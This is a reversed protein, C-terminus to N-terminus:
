VPLKMYKSGFEIPISLLGVTWFPNVISSKAIGWCLATWHSLKMWISVMALLPLFCVIYKGLTLHIGIVVVSIFCVALLVFGLVFLPICFSIIGRRMLEHDVDFVVIVDSDDEYFEDKWTWLACLPNRGALLADLEAELETADPVDWVGDHHSATSLRTSNTAPDTMGTARVETMGVNPM